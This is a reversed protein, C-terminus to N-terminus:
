LVKEGGAKGKLWRDPAEKVYRGPQDRRVTVGSPSCGTHGKVFGQSAEVADALSARALIDGAARGVVVAVGGEGQPQRSVALQEDEAVGLAGEVVDEGGEVGAARPADGGRPAGAELRGRGSDGGGM